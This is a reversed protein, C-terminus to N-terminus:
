AGFRRYVAADAHHANIHQVLRGVRAATDVGHSKASKAEIHPVGVVLLKVPKM